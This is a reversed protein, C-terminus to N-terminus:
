AFEAASAANAERMRKIDASMEKAYGVLLRNRHCGPIQDPDLKASVAGDRHIIVTSPDYRDSLYAIIEARQNKTITM